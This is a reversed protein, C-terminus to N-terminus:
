PPETLVTTATDSRDAPEIINFGIAQGEAWIGVARRVAEALLRHRRFVNDLGEEFLMDLAARQGFLLHEPPTGAYKQYHMDGERETWDWYPRRLGAKKEAERARASAVVFGLGAAGRM